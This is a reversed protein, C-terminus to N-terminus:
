PRIAVQSIAPQPTPVGAKQHIAAVVVVSEECLRAPAVPRGILEAVFDHLLEGNRGVGITRLQRSRTGCYHIHHRFRAAIMQMAAAKIIQPVASEICARWQNRELRRVPLLLESERKASRDAFVFCKEESAEVLVDKVHRLHHFKGVAVRHQRRDRGVSHNWSIEFGAILRQHQRGRGLEIGLCAFKARPQQAIGSEGAHIHLESRPM